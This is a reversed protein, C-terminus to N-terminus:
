LWQRERPRACSACLMEWAQDTRIRPAPVLKHEHAMGEAPCEAPTQTLLLLTMTWRHRSRMVTLHGDTPAGLRQEVHGLM